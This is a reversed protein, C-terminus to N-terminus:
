LSLNLSIIQDDRLLKPVIAAKIIELTIIYLRLKSHVIQIYVPLKKTIINEITIFSENESFVSPYFSKFPPGYLLYFPYFSDFKSLFKL